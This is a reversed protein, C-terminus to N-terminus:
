RCGCRLRHDHPDEGAPGGSAPEPRTRPRIRGSPDTAPPPAALIADLLETPTAGAMQAAATSGASTGITVDAAVVDLGGDALGAIVGILWSNGTSGGGGLVLARGTSSTATTMPLWKELGRPTGADPRVMDMLPDSVRPEFGPHVRDQVETACGAPSRSRARTEAARM